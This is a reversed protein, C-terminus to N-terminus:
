RFRRPVFRPVNRCYEEYEAGFRRRMEREELLISSMVLAIWLFFTEWAWATGALLCAGVVAAIMGTYRPHRVRAYMGQTTLELKGTLEAHGVLKRHGLDRDARWLLAIDVAILVVGASCVILSPVGPAVLQHRALVIFAGGITWAGLGAIWFATRVRQRWFDTLPHLILWYIPVPLDMFFVLLAIYRVARVLTM